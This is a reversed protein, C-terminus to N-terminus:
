EAAVWVVYWGGFPDADPDLSSHFPSEAGDASVSTVAFDFEGDGLDAHEVRIEPSDNAAVQGLFKWGWVAHPRWYVNYAAVWGM